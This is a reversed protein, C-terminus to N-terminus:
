VDRLELLVEVKAVCALLEAQDDGVVSTTRYRSKDELGPRKTDELEEARLLM